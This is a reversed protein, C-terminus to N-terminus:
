CDCTEIEVKPSVFGKLVLGRSKPRFLDSGVKRTKMAVEIGERGGNSNTNGEMTHVTDNGNVQIVIGVHGTWHAKGNRYNQWVILDGAEPTPKVAYGESNPRTHDRKAWLKTFNNYTAVAGPSFMKDLEALEDKTNEFKGYAKKWVLEAFYACWAQGKQWGVAEMADQFDRDKFGSNGRFETQGEYSEAVQVIKSRLDGENLKLKRKM